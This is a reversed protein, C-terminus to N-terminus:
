VSAVKGASAKELSTSKTRLRIPSFSARSRNPMQEPDARGMRWLLPGLLQIM